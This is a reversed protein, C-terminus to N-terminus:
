KNKIGENIRKIEKIKEENEKKLNEYDIAIKEFNKNKQLLNDYDNIIKGKFEKIENIENELNFKEEELYRIKNKAEELENIGMDLSKIIEIKNETLDKNINKIEENEDQFKKILFDLEKNELLIKQLNKQLTKIDL